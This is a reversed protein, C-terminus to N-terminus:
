AAEEAAKRPKTIAKRVAKKEDPGLKKVIEILDNFTMMKVLEDVTPKKVEAKPQPVVQIGTSNKKVWTWHIEHGSMLPWLQMWLDQNQIDTGDAKKYGREACPKMWGTIANSVYMSEICANVRCPEKLKSFGTILSMLEMRMKNTGLVRDGFTKVVGGCSLIVKYQGASDSVENRVCLGEAFMTVDKM